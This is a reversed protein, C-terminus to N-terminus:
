PKPREREWAADLASQGGSRQRLKLSDLRLSRGRLLHGETRWVVDYIASATRADDGVFYRVTVLVPLRGTKEDAGGDTLKLLVKAFGDVAIAPDGPPRQPAVGLGRPFTIIADSLDHHPDSLALQKGGDKVTGALEIRARDRIESSQESARTTAQERRDTWDSYFNLGAIAVGAVAVVEALTLWRRRTRAREASDPLEAGPPLPDVEGTM